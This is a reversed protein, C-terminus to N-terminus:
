LRMAGDLRVNEGNFYRNRCMELVLSAFEAPDGLRKPFPVASVLAELIKPPATSLLPTDFNGPLISNVRIGENMLDRAIPLTMGLVGNKSASYAAQGAQGEGAAISSTNVILGREGDEQPDLTMMGTAATAICYFTGFLNIRLVKEYDAFPFHRIAGTDRARSATKAVIGIGACNVLVREQGHAARAAAFAAEVSASDAVDVMCFTGGVEVALAEGRAADRDFIAVKAGQGALARVTAEGLGSAGGTVVAAIGELRM